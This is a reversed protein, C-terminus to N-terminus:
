TTVPLGGKYLYIGSVVTKSAVRETVIKHWSGFMYIYLGAGLGPNWNDGNALRIMGERPKDPEKSTKDIQGSALLELQASIRILEDLLYTGLQDNEIPPVEPYYNYIQAM